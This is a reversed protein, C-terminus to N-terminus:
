YGIALWTIGRIGSNNTSTFRAAAYSFDSKTQSILLAGGDNNEGSDALVMRTLSVNLCANPFELPFSVTFDAEDPEDELNETGWQMIINNPLYTYGNSLLSSAQLNLKNSFTNVGSFTNIGTSVIPGDLTTDSSAQLSTFNGSSPTTEGVSAGDVSGGAIVVEPLTAKGTLTLAEGEITTVTVDQLEASGNLVTLGNSSTIGSSTISGSFDGTGTVTLNNEVALNYFSLSGTSDRLALTNETAEPTASSNVSSLYDIWLYINNFMWNWEECTPIQGMDWGATRLVERPRVKNTEGTAPLTTDDTAWLPLYTPQAM